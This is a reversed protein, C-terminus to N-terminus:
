KRSLGYARSTHHRDLGLPARPRFRHAPGFSDPSAAFPRKGDNTMQVRGEGPRCKRAGCSETQMQPTIHATKRIAPTSQSASARKSKRSVTPARLTINLSASPRARAFGVNPGSVTRLRRLPVNETMPWESGAKVRHSHGVAAAATQGSLRRSAPPTGTTRPARARLRRLQPRRPAGPRCPPKLGFSGSFAAKKFKVAM